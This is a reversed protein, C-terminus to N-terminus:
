KLQFPDAEIPLQNLSVEEKEAKELRKKEKQDYWLLDRDYGLKSIFGEPGKLYRWWLLKTHDSKWFPIWLVNEHITKEINQIAKVRKEENLDFEYTEIWKDMEKTGFQFLNNTGKQINETHLFQRPAPYRGGGFFLITASFTKENIAKFFAAGDIVKIEIDVGIQKGREKIFALLNNWYDTGSQIVLKLPRNNKMRIGNSGPTLKWGEEELIRNAKAVNHEWTRISEDKYPPFVDFFNHLRVYHGYHFKENIAKFDFTHALAKRLKINKWLQDETNFFIGRAGSISLNYIKQKFIYGKNIEDIDTKKEWEIPDPSYIDLKNKKFFEFAIVKKRVVELRIKNFNYRGQNYRKGYGWWDKVREFELYKGKKWNKLVYPGPVVNPKWQYTKVWDKDLKIAHQPLPSIDMEDLIRWSPKKSRIMLTHSDVKEVADIHDRTWQNYFPANIHPSQMFEFAFIYDDATIAEGDSWRADSDLKYYVTKHDDMVAWHTALAPIKELTVPHTETLSLFSYARNYSVFGGSNSGPGYLRFTSPYDTIYSRLVGGKEAEPDTFLPENANTKWHIDAPLKAKAKYQKVPTKVTAKKAAKKDENQGCSSFILLTSLILLIPLLRTNAFRM